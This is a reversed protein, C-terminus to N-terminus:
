LVKIIVFTIDDELSSEGRFASLEAIIKEGIETAPLQAHRRILGHFRDMGFMEGDKNFTEWLGDTVALYIQGSRVDNFIHEDYNINKVIGLSVSKGNLEIFSDETQDYVIPAEHGAVAWHMENRKADITLLLMTMFQDSSTDEVLFNNLHNLLDALSDTNHCFSRLIGRATAMLMAEAVGHGAVDGVAIAATTPPLGKINLFDYYDGGIQDCYTAHAAIDLGDIEPTGSPLLNQQVEQALALSHRMRMRDQLDSTMANIAKSLRVFETSYGLKLRSNLNGKGIKQVHAVLDLIPWLSIAALIVGILLTLLVAVIGIRVSRQRGANVESLFDSEPVLTAIIWTLGTNHKSPSIMLLYPEGYIKLNFLYRSEVASLSGLSAEIQKAAASIYRDGTDSAIVPFNTADTISVGTSTAILRGKQNILFARGTRGVRLKALFLTIDNLTLEANMVGYIQGRSNQFPQAYGLALMVPSKEKKSKKAYPETWAPKGAQVAAQYWPRNRPDYLRKDVPAKEMQGQPNYYYTELYDGTKEDKIMFMYGSGEPLRSIGVSRGKAGGWTISSLGEFARAQEFLARRWNRLDDPKLLGDRILNSNIKQIRAPLNLLDDLRGEIHDHIQALNQSMLENATSIGQIFALTSLVIVVIFVPAAFLLPVSIKMPIKSIITRLM